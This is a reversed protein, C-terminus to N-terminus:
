GEVRRLAQACDRSMVLIEGDDVVVIADEIGVLTVTPGDSVTMVNAADINRTGPALLDLGMAERATMLANWDGIDSWGMDVTVVAASGTNEMIAYDVSEGVIASFEELGPEFRAGTEKGRAVSREVRSLMEPRHRGLEDLFDGARFVFIGANWVFDGSDLYAQANAADPKEVFRAVMHGAGSATGREIYGYGTEPRDPAIGLCVLKGQHALDAASEVADRFAPEDAIHHDSPCVLLVTDRPARLAALAIAPATNRAAPEVILSHAAAQDEVLGAHAEGAVVIPPSFMARDAVRDMTQQFLTRQGLLPLFPKPRDPRSLPWLRTGSGGCLVVPQIM